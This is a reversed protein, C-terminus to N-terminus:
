RTAWRMAERKEAAIHKQIARKDADILGPNARYAEVRAVVEDVYRVTHQRDAEVTCGAAAVMDKFAALASRDGLDADLRNVLPM